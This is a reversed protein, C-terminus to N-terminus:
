ELVFSKSKRFTKNGTWFVTFGPLKYLTFSFNVPDSKGNLISGDFGNTKRDSKDTATISIYNDCLCVEHLFSDWKPALCHLLCLFPFEM